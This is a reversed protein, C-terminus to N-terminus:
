RKGFKLRGRAGRRFEEIMVRGDERYPGKKEREGKQWENKRNKTPSQV